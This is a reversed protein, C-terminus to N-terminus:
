DRFWNTGYGVPEQRRRYEYESYGIVGIASCVMLTCVTIALILVMSKYQRGVRLHGMMM